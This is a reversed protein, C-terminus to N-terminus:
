KIPPFSFHQKSFMALPLHSSPMGPVFFPAFSLEKLFTALIFPISFFFVFVHFQAGILICHKISM